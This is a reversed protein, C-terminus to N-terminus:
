VQSAECLERYQERTLGLPCRLVHMAFDDFISYVCPIVVLTLITSFSLGWVIALAMPRMFQDVGFLGIAMPMLGALTTISTLIIPRLRAM